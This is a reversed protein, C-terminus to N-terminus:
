DIRCYEPAPFAKTLGHHFLSPTYNNDDDLFFFRKSLDVAEEATDWVPLGNMIEYYAKSNSSSNLGRTVRGMLLVSFLVGAGRVYISQGAAQPIRNVLEFGLWGGLGNGFYKWWQNNYQLTNLQCQKEDTLLSTNSYKKVSSGDKRYNLAITAYPL